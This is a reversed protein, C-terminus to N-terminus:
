ARAKPCRCILGVRATLMGAASRGARRNWPTRINESWEPQPHYEGADAFVRLQRDNAPTFAFGILNRTEPKSAERIELPHTNTSFHYDAGGNRKTEAHFSRDEIDVRVTLRVDADDPLQKGTARAATPRSFRFCRQTEAKWCKRACKLKLRRAMARTRSLDGFRRRDAEFAALNQFDLPTIFGDANVWVRIRKAFVHRDVPVTPHLNAGLVCDYKSNVRGLDVCLRAMGGRGNTLLVLDTPKRRFESQSRSRRSFVFRRKWRKSATRM